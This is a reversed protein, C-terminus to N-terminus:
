QPTGAAVSTVAGSASVFEVRQGDADARRVLADSVVDGESVFRLQTGVLVAASPQGNWLDVSLLQPLLTPREVPPAAARPPSAARARKSVRALTAQQRQLQQRLQAIDAEIRDLRQQGTGQATQAEQECASPREDLNKAPADSATSATLATDPSATGAKHDSHQELAAAAAIRGIRMGPPEAMAAHWTGVSAITAALCSAAALLRCRLRGIRAKPTSAAARM